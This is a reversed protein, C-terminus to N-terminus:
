GWFALDPWLLRGILFLGLLSGAVVAAARWYVTELAEATAVVLVAAFWVRGAVALAPNVPTLLLPLYCFGQLRMITTMRTESPCVLKGVLLTLGAFMIWVMAANIVLSLLLRVSFGWGALVYWLYRAAAVGSVLLAADATARHDLSIDFFAGRRFLAAQAARRVVIM